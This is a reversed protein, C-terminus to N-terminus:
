RCVATLMARCFHPLDEPFRSTIINGDVAVPRNVYRAGANILDDKISRFCTMERGRVIGASILVWQGHCIAGIPKQAEHFERVLRLVSKKMRLRDPAFGGPIILADFDCARCQTIEAPAEVPWEHRGWYTGIKLAAVSVEFGAEQFRLTSYWLELDEYEDDTLILVAKRGLPRM